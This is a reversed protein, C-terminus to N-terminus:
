VAVHECPERMEHYATISSRGKGGFAREIHITLDPDSLVAENTAIERVREFDATSLARVLIAVLEYIASCEEDNANQAQAPSFIRDIKTSADRAVRMARLERRVAIPTIQEGSECRALIKAVLEQPTSPASLLYLVSPGLHAVAASKGAAWQAVRMHVQATRAPICVESELWHLFAGHSLHRKSESLAKGIQIVSTVCQRRIRDAQGRLFKAVSLPVSAYDFKDGEAGSKLTEVVRGAQELRM